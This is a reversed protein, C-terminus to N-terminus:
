RSVIIKLKQRSELSGNANIIEVVALYWGSACGAANWDVQNTGPNGQLAAVEEGAIDYIHARLTYQQASTLKFQTKFTGGIRSLYNPSATITGNRASEGSNVQIIRTIDETTGVGEAWHVSLIYTGSSVFGGSDSTGDWNLTVATASTQIVMQVSAAPSSSGPQIASQSLTVGTLQSCTTDNIWGYLHKVLEGAENFINVTVKLLSRNVVAQRTVTSVVGEPDVNEIEVLYTGNAALGGDSNTGDWCGLSVGKSYLVIQGNAGGLTTITGELDLSSITQSYKRTWLSQILEGAENYIGARVTYEGSVLVTAGANLPQGLGAYFLAAENPILTGSPVFSAVQAQCTVQYTGATLPSPLTWNVLGTGQTNTVSGASPTGLGIFSLEAPLTDSVVVANLPNGALTVSLTYTLIDGSQATGSSVTKGLAVWPTSTPTVTPTPTVSPTPTNTPTSTPTPSLTVTFTLTSTSSFTPTTTSTPTQTFTLSFTTTFTVTPTPTMTSTPTFSLTPTMTTTFTPTATPSWTSTPTQTSTQTFTPTPTPTFNCINTIKRVVNNNYDVVYLDGTSDFAISETHSLEALTAPGGDGSYGPVGTGAVTQIIGTSTSIERIVNNMGDCLFINGGCGIAMTGDDPNFTALSAPGGDGTYGVAGAGAFTNIIGTTPSVKRFVYNYSDCFLLNGSPDICPMGSPYGGGSSNLSALTAPGGDGTYGAIGNGAVTTIIGSALNVKRIVNNGGDTIYLNGLGDYRIGDPFFMEASSAPGGDGTYGAAGNGIITQIIGTSAYVERIVQNYFDAIYLNDQSDFAIGSPYFLTALTAPGGDGSYGGLTSGGAYTSIIGTGAAVKRVMCNGADAVYYNGKSDFAIDDPQNLTALTAPGGDGSYNAIGNGVATTITQGWAPNLYYNELCTLAFFLFIIQLIKRFLLPGRILKAGM